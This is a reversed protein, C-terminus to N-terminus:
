GWYKRKQEESLSRAFTYKLLLFHELENFIHLLAARSEFEERSQPLDSKKFYQRTDEAQILLAEANNSEGFTDVIKRLFMVLCEAQPPIKGLRPLDRQVRKLLLIQNRRMDIYERYYQLDITLANESAVEIENKAKRLKEDLWNMEIDSDPKGREFGNALAALIKKISEDIEYQSKQIREVSISLFLNIGIGIGAGILLLLMENTIFHISMEKEAWFHTILVSCMAIANQMSFAHCFAVFFLLYIGFGLLNYGLVSFSILSIATAAFFAILRQLATRLTEKKTEQLSLLTIIGASPAYLLGLTQAILIAACAGLAAKSTKSLISNLRKM